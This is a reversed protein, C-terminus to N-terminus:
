LVRCGALWAIGFRPTYFYTGVLVCLASVVRRNSPGGCLLQAEAALFLMTTFSVLQKSVLPTHEIIAKRVRWSEHQALENIAPQLAQALQSIGIVTLCTCFFAVVTLCVLWALCETCAVCQAILAHRHLGFPPKYIIGLCALSQSHPNTPNM